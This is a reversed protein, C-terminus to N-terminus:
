HAAGSEFRRSVTYTCYSVQSKWEYQCAYEITVACYLLVCCSPIIRDLFGRGIVWDLGLWLWLWLWLGLESGKEGLMIFHGVRFAVGRERVEGGV